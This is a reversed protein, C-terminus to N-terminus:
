VMRARPEIAPHIFKLYGGREEVLPIREKGNDIIYDFCKTMCLQRYTPTGDANNPLSPASNIEIVYANGQEDTMVDVGGFDLSSQNFAQIAVKVAKLPWNDFRVNDFRGGRAVNWAVDQPNGPTKQAVSAVRGQVIFVRYEAVKNILEQIYYGGNYRNCWRAVEHRDNCLHLRRGQAHRQPRVIVTPYQDREPLYDQLNDWSRPVIEPCERMLKMRFGRKDNVEHISRSTNLTTRPNGPFDATCGWRILLDTQPIVPLYRRRHMLDHRIVTMPHEARLAISRASTRGLKPRRLIVTSM